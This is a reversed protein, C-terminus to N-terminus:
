SKLIVFDRIRQAVGKAGPNRGQGIHYSQPYFLHIVDRGRIDFWYELHDSTYYTRKEDEYPFDILIPFGEDNFIWEDWIAPCEGAACGMTGCNHIIRGNYKVDNLGSAYSSNFYEMDFMEHLLLGNELHDALKLLREVNM